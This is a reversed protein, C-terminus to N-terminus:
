LSVRHSLSAPEREQGSGSTVDGDRHEETSVNWDEQGWGDQAWDGEVEKDEVGVGGNAQGDDETEGVDEGVPSSGVVGESKVSGICDGESREDQEKKSDERDMGASNQSEETEVGEADIESEMSKDEDTRDGCLEHRVSGKTGEPTSSEEGDGRASTSPSAPPTVEEVWDRPSYWRVFDELLSGPNAAQTVCQHLLM